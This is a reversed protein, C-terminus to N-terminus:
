REKRKERNGEERERENEGERGRERERERERRVDQMIDAREIFGFSDKLSKVIGKVKEVRAPQVLRVMRARFAGTRSGDWGVM